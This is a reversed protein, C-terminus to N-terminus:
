LDDGYLVHARVNLYAYIVSNIEEAEKTTLRGEKHANAIINICQHPWPLKEDIEPKM